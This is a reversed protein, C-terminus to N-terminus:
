MGFQKGITVAQEALKNKQDRLANIRKVKDEAPLNPNRRIKDMADNLDNIKNQMNSLMTKLPLAQPNAELKEKLAEVDSIDASRKISSSIETVDQVMGYFDKVYKNSLQEPSKLFRSLGITNAAIATADTPDGFYGQPRTGASALVGDVTATFTTALTGLYGRLLVDVQKPSLGAKGTFQGIMKAVESTAEDAREGSPFRKDAITEIDRGTFMDRNFYIEAVPKVFQPIPNFLFTGMAIQGLGDALESGDQQRVADMILAPIAGFASGLEFVRPVAVVTDGVRVYNNAIKDRVSLKKYWEDDGYVANLGLEIATLMLGRYAVALPLGIAGRQFLTKGGGATGAEMLRYLGQVRANLFPVMPILTALLSGAIGKGTGSRSFNTLNVAEWAAQEPNM